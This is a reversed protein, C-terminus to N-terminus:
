LFSNSKINYIMMHGTDRYKLIVYLFSDHYVESLTTFRIYFNILTAVARYEDLPLDIAQDVLEQFSFQHLNELQFPLHILYVNCFSIRTNLHIHVQVQNQSMQTVRRRSTAMNSLTPMQNSMMGVVFDVM